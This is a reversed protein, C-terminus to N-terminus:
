LLSAHWININGTRKKNAINDRIGDVVSNHASSINRKEDSISITNYTSDRWAWEPGSSPGRPGSFPWSGGPEPPQQLRIFLRVTMQELSLTCRKWIFWKSLINQTQPRQYVLVHSSTSKVIFISGPSTKQFVKLTCLWAIM